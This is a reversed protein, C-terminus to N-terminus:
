NIEWAALVVIAVPSAALVLSASALFFTSTNSFELLLALAAEAMGWDQAANRLERSSREVAEVDPSMLATRVIAVARASVGADTM